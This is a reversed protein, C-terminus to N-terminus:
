ASQKAIDDFAQKIIISFYNNGELAPNFNKIQDPHFIKMLQRYKQKAEDITANESLGLIKYPDYSNSGIQSSKFSSKYGRDKTDYKKRAANLKSEIDEYGNNLEFEIEEDSFSNINDMLRNLFDNVFGTYEDIGFALISLINLKGFFEFLNCVTTESVNKEVFILVKDLKDMLLKIQSPLSYTKISLLFKNQQDHDLKGIKYFLDMPHKGSKMISKFELTLNQISRAVDLALDDFEEIKDERNITEDATKENEGVPQSCNIDEKNESKNESEGKVAKKVERIEKITMEDVTKQEGTSPITHKSNIFEDRDIEKPLSVLEFLKSASLKESTPSKGFQEFAQIYRSAHVKEIGISELWSGFKGHTLDNDKVYKIRKGIEFTANAEIKKLNIIEATIDNLNSSALELNGMVKGGNLNYCYFAFYSEGSVFFGM